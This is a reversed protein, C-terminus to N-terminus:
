KSKSLSRIYILLLSLLSRSNRSGHDYRCSLRRKRALFSLRCGGELGPVSSRSQGPSSLDVLSCAFSSNNLLVSSLIFFIVVSQRASARVHAVSAPAVVSLCGLSFPLCVTAHPTATGPERVCLAGGHSKEVHAEPSGHCSRAGHAVVRYARDGCWSESPCIARVAVLPVVRLVVLEVAIEIRAGGDGEVVVVVLLHSLKVDVHRVCQLHVADLHVACQGLLHEVAVVGGDLGHDGDVGYAIGLVVVLVAVDGAGVM